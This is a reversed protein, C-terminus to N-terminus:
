ILVILMTLTFGSVLPVCVNDYQLFVEAVSGALCAALALPFPIFLSTVVLASVFGAVSGMLTKNNYIGIRGYARGFVTSFSDLFSVILLSLFAVHVTFLVSVILGGVFFEFAGKGIVEGPREFRDILFSFFPVRHSALFFSFPVGIILSVCFFLVSYFRGLVLVLVSLCVGMVLHFLNRRLELDM